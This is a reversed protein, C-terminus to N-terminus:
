GTSFRLLQTHTHTSSNTGNAKILERLSLRYNVRKRKTLIKVSYVIFVISLINRGDHQKRKNTLQRQQTTIPQQKSAQKTAHEKQNQIDNMTPLHSEAASNQNWNDCNGPESLATSEQKPYISLSEHFRACYPLSFVTYISVRHM